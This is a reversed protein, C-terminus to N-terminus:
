GEEVDIMRQGPVAKREIEFQDGEVRHLLSRRLCWPNRGVGDYEGLREPARPAPENDRSFVSSLRLPM